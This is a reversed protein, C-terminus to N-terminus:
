KLNKKKLNKLKKPIKMKKNKIKVLKNLNKKLIKLMIVKALIEEKEIDAVKVKDELEVKEILNEKIITNLLKIIINSKILTTNQMIKKFMIEMLKESCKNKKVDKNKIKSKNNLLVKMMQIKWQWYM